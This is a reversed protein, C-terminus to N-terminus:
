RSKVGGFSMDDWLLGLESDVTVLLENQGVPASGGPVLQHLQSPTLIHQQQHFFDGPMYLVRYIIPYKGQWSTLWIEEMLPYSTNNQWAMSFLSHLNALQLQLRVFMSVYVPNSFHAFNGSINPQPPKFWYTLSSCCMLREWTTEDLLRPGWGPAAATGLPPTPPPLTSIVFSTWRPPRLFRQFIGKSEILYSDIINMQRPEERLTNQHDITSIKPIKPQSQM